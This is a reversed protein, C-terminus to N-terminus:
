AQEHKKKFVLSAYMREAGNDWLKRKLLKNNGYSGLHKMFVDKRVIGKLKSKLFRSGFESDQGYILFDEDFGGIKEFLEKKVLLCQAALIDELRETTGHQAPAQAQMQPCTTNDLTPVVLMCDPESDFTEMMRKLWDQEPLTDNDLFCIYDCTSEKIIKNWFKSLNIPIPQYENNYVNLKFPWNSYKVVREICPAVVESDHCQMVIVEVRKTEQETTLPRLTLERIKVLADQM